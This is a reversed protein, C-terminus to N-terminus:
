EVEGANVVYQLAKGKVLCEEYEQEPNAMSTLASGVMYSLYKIDSNYLLTRIVVNFDFDNEPTIYGISGSYLGRKTAEYTESIEMASLKPAGTMSGM